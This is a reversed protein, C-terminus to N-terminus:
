ESAAYSREYAYHYYTNRAVSERALQTRTHTKEHAFLHAEITICRDTVQQPESEM